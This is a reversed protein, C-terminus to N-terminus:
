GASDLHRTVLWANGALFSACALLAWVIAYRSFLPNDRHGDDPEPMATM